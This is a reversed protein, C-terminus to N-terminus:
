GSGSVVRPISRSLMKLPFEKASLPMSIFYGQAIDCNLNRLYDCTKQDKVGEAV